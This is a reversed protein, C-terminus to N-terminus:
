TLSSGVSQTRIPPMHFLSSYLIGIPIWILQFEVLYCLGVLPMFMILKVM